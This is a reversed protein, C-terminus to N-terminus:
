DHAAGADGGGAGSSQEICQLSISSGTPPAGGGFLVAQSCTGAAAGTVYCWGPKSSQKCSGNVLDGNVLQNVQCVTLTKPDPQGSKTGGAANWAAEQQQQFTALIKPDPKTLGLNPDCSAGPQPLTALILCPVTGDAAPTLQQPLCQSALANKLRDVITAVAPRYGYYPDTGQANDNIDIPCLSSVIGQQGLLHALLLERITPYTKAAVQQTQLNQNCVPPVQEPALTAKSPCDCAQGNAAVTCDRPQGLQFTCAYQRDVYLVHDAGQDTIWERGHIPDTNNPATPAPLGARPQYSEIMHANIGTYDYNLPDNGLIAKWDDNSLQSAMPDGAKFHLLEHPVGGIHAFFILDKTRPGIPLNCLTAADTNSGDPLTAAFLPNTCNNNGLVYSGAGQPYEGSRDPVKPSTLGTSYRQIPYQPDVGYKQKMHVHRLNPDYGWDNLNAKSYRAACNPDAGQGPFDCSTCMPDAPNNACPTTGHAPSYYTEHFKYATGGYARADVESDNEDTLTIVAVLSDPRLFDHRQQLVTADVGNWFATCHSDTVNTPDCPAVNPM